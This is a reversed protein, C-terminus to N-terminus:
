TAVSECGERVCGYAVNAYILSSVFFASWLSRKRMYQRGVHFSDLTM